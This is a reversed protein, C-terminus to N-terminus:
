DVTIRTAAMVGKVEGAPEFNGNVDYPRFDFTGTYKNGDPTLVVTEILNFSGTPSLGSIDWTFGYHNLKVTMPGTPKWAGVCVAGTIPPIDASEFETGDRHWVDLSEHNFPPVEASTFAVKWVGVISDHWESSENTQPFHVHMGGTATRPDGCGAYAGTAALALGAALVTLRTNRIRRARATKRVVKTINRDSARIM